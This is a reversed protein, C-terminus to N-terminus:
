DFCKDLLEKTLKISKNCTQKFNASSTKRFYANEVKKNKRQVAKVAPVFDGDGSVIIAIYFKNDAAGEVMDVTMNIDDEKIVYYFNKSDKIRRKMLKCILKFRLIRKIKSFFRQQGKYKELNRTINLPANYYFINIIERKNTLHSCFKEFNFDTVNISDGYTKKLGFYFNNGDIFIVVRM